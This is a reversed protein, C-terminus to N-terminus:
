IVTKDKEEFILTLKEIERGLFSITGEYQLEGAGIGMPNIIYEQSFHYDIFLVNGDRSLNVSRLFSGGEEESSVEELEWEPPYRFTFGHDTNIYAEWGPYPDPPEVTRPVEEFSDLIEAVEAQIDEPINLDEYSIQANDQLSLSFVLDSVQITGGPENYFIIKTKEQYVLASTSVEQDFFTVEGLSQIDGAGIGAGGIGILENAFGHEIYLTLSEQSLQLLSTTGGIQNQFSTEEAVWTSPYRFSFGYIENTYREWDPYPDPTPEITPELIETAAADMSETTPTETPQELEAKCGSLVLVLLLITSIIIHFKDKM